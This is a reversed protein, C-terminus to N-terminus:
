DSQSWSYKDGRLVFISNSCGPTTFNTRSLWGRKTISSCDPLALNTPQVIVLKGFKGESRLLAMKLIGETIATALRM